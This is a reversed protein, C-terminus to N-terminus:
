VSLFLYIDNQRWYINVSTLWICTQIKFHTKSYKLNEMLHVEFFFINEINNKHLSYRLYKRPFFRRHENVRNAISIILNNWSMIIIFLQMWRVKLHFQIPFCWIRGVGCFFCSRCQFIWYADLICNWAMRHKFKQFTNRQTKRLLEKRYNETLLLQRPSIRMLYQIWDLPKM